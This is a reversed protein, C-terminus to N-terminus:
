KELLRERYLEDPRGAIREIVAPSFFNPGGLMAAGVFVRAAKEVMLSSALVAAPSAGLAIVGHNQMLIIKPVRGYKDIYAATESRIVKALPLGPDTLPVYVSAVGCSVIEDPFMRKFAFDEAKPSCLIQNVTTAHTHGVYNVGPLSLLLAHFVAEVSPKKATKDVRGDLLAAEIEADTMAGRDALGVLEKLHCEVVDAEGLNGLNSGSAKVLFRDDGLRTSTNGEGLVALGREERGLEHSLKLLAALAESKTTM